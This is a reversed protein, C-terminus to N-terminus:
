LTGTNYTWWLVNAKKKNGVVKTKHNGYMFGEYTHLKLLYVSYVLNCHLITLSRM